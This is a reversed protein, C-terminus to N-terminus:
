YVTRLAEKRPGLAPTTSNTSVCSKFDQSGFREYPNSERGRYALYWLGRQM